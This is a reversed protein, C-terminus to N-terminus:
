CSRDDLVFLSALKSDFSSGEHKRVVPNAGNVLEVLHVDRILHCDVLSHFLLCDGYGFGTDLGCEVCARTNKSCGVRNPSSVVALDRQAGINGHASGDHTSEVEEEDNQVLTTALRILLERHVNDVYMSKPVFCNPRLEAGLLQLSVDPICSREIWLYTSCSKGYACNVSLFHM